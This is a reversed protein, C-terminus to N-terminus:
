VVAAPGAARRIARARLAGGIAGLLAGAITTVVTQLIAPDAIKAARDDVLLADALVLGLGFVLGGLAGRRAGGGANEHEFGAGVGGLCALVNAIAWAASSVGLMAGTAFGALAAPIVVLWVRLAQPRESLMPPLSM